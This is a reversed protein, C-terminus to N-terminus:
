GKRPAVKVKYIISLIPLTPRSDDGIILLFFEVETDILFEESEERQADM